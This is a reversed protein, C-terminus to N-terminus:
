QADDFMREYGTLEREWDNLLMLLSLVVGILAGFFYLYLM